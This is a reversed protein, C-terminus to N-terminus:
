CLTSRPRVCASRHPPSVGSIQRNASIKQPNQPTNRVGAFTTGASLSPNSGETGRLSYLPKRSRGSRGSRCREVRPMLRSIPRGAARRTIPAAAVWRLRVQAAAQMRGHRGGGSGVTMACGPLAPSAPMWLHGAVIVRVARLLQRAICLAGALTPLSRSAPSRRCLADAAGGSDDGAKGGGGYPGFVVRGAGRGGGWVKPVVDNISSM